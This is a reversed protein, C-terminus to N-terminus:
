AADERAKRVKRGRCAQVVILAVLAIAFLYKLTTFVRALVAATMAQEPYSSLVTVMCINESWDSLCCCAGLVLAPRVLRTDDARKALFFAISVLLLSALLPVLVDLTSSMAIYMSRGDEGYAEAFDFLDNPLYGINLELYATGGTLPLFTTFYLTFNVAAVVALLVAVVGIEKGSVWQYIAREPNNMSGM